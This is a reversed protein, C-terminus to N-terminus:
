GELPSGPRHMAREIAVLALFRAALAGPTPTHCPRGEAEAVNEYLLAAAPCVELLARLEASPDVLAFEETLRMVVLRYLGGDVCSMHRELRELRRALMYITTLSRDQAQSPSRRERWPDPVDHQTPQM